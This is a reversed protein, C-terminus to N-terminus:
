NEETTYTPVSCESVVLEHAVRIEFDGNGLNKKYERSHLEGKINIVDNVELGELDRAVKAWALCPLYSNLKQKNDDVVLNNALIFHLNQKSDATVRMEDVKCVRGTIDFENTPVSDTEDCEPRDFYTFVYIDVKNRGEATQHSYSRVNGVIEIEQGDTYPNAFKKFRLNLVDEKGDKRKVLLEAKDYEIDGITHSHRINRIMGKLIIKNQNMM